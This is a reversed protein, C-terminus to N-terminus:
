PRGDCVIALREEFIERVEADWGWYEADYEVVWRRLVGEARARM